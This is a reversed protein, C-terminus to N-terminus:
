GSLSVRPPSYRARSSIFSSIAASGRRISIRRGHRVPDPDYGLDTMHEALTRGSDSRVLRDVADPPLVGLAMRSGIYSAPFWCSEEARIAMVTM